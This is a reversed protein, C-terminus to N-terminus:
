RGLRGPMFSAVGRPFRFPDSLMVLLGFSQGLTQAITCDHEAILTRAAGVSGRETVRESVADMAFLHAVNTVDLTPDSAKGSVEVVQKAMTVVIQDTLFGICEKLEFM